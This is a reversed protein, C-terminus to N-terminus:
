GCASVAPFTTRRFAMSEGHLIRPNLGQCGVRHHAVEPDTVRLRDTPQVELARRVLDEVLDGVDEAFAVTVLPEIVVIAPAELNSDGPAVPADFAGLEVTHPAEDSGTVQTVVDVEDSDIVGEPLEDICLLLDDGGLDVIQEPGPLDRV